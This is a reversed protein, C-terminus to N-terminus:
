SLVPLVTVLIIHDYIHAIRACELGKKPYLWGFIVGGISNGIIIYTLLGVPPNAVAQYAVPLHGLAFIIASVIIGLWYVIPQTGGFIKSCTWVILTMVGFRILIEETIGGYLFRAALTPQLSTGFEKFEAPIVPNFTVNVVVLLLGALIGGLIGNMLIETFNIESRIGAAKEIFPVQLHVRQYLITGVVIAGLLMITPNVLSLLKIQEPTYTDKLIAEAEAPLPIEMTLLSAIGILGPVILLVGLITKKRNM